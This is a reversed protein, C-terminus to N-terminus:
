GQFIDGIANTVAKGYDGFALGIDHHRHFLYWVVQVIFTITYGTIKFGALLLRGFLKFPDGLVGLM